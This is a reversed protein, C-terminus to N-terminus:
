SRKKLNPVSIRFTTGKNLESELTVDASILRALKMAVYLGLGTGGHQRTRFDESRFFKDFVRDQDPKSIGIGTDTVAFEVGDHKTVASITVSGEDTYKIANTIFNQLIERVYLQSSSLVVESPKIEGVQLQLQKKEADSTYAKQLDGLLNKVKIEEVEVNLTGQEARSLTSLDNIMGALLLTQEHAARLAEKAQALDGTKGLIFEANGINGEAIATPTRLEHSVVSIFEDREEELSKERTIDRLLMVHGLTGGKGYGLHVPAIALYLNILSGDSYKIRFDRNTMPTVTTEVLQAVNVPQENKDLIHLIKDIPRSQISGNVDLVDLAAANYFMVKGRKNIAITGDAMSNILSSLQQHQLNEKARSAELNNISKQTVRWINSIFVLVLGVFATAVGTIILQAGDHLMEQQGPLFLWTTVSLLMGLYGIMATKFRIFLDAAILMALWGLLMIANYGIVFTSVMMVAPIYTYIYFRTKKATLPSWLVETTAVIVFFAALPLYLPGYYDNTAIYGYKTLLVILVVMLSMVFAILRIANVIRKDHFFLQEPDM